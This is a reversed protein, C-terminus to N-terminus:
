QLYKLLQKLYMPILTSMKKEILVKTSEIYADMFNTNDVMVEDEFTIFHYPDDVGFVKQLLELWFKQTQSKESGQGAWEEAFEAAAKKQELPTM